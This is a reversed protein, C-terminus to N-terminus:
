ASALSVAATLLSRPWKSSPRGARGGRIPIQKAVFAKSQLRRFWRMQRDAPQHPVLHSRSGATGALSLSPLLERHLSSSIVCPNFACEERHRFVNGGLTIRFVPVLSSVIRSPASRLTLHQRAPRNKSPPAPCSTSAASCMARHLGLPAPRLLPYAIPLQGRCVVLLQSRPSATSRLPAASPPDFSNPTPHLARIRPRIAGPYRCRRRATGGRRLPNKSAAHMARSISRSYAVTLHDPGTTMVM